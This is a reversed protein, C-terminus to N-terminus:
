YIMAGSADFQHNAGDVFQMGTVMGQDTSYYWKNNWNIWGTKMYGQEDFFFWKNNIFEWNSVTYSGDNHKYWWRGNEAKLWGQSGNPGVIYIAGTGSPGTGSSSGGSSSSGSFHKSDSESWDSWGGYNKDYARVQFWYYDSTDIDSSFNYYKKTTSVTDIRRGDKYLQVQYKSANGIITWKATHGSWYVDTFQVYDTIDGDAEGINTQRLIELMEPDNEDCYSWYVPDNVWDSLSGGPGVGFKEMHWDEYSIAYASFVLGIISAAAAALFAIKKM